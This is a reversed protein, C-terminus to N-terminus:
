QDDSGDADNNNGDSRACLAVQKWLYLQVRDGALEVGAANVLDVWHGLVVGDYKGKKEFATM